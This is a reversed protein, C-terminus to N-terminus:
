GEGKGLGKLYEEVNIYKINNVIKTEGRYIVYKGKISGFYHETEKNLELDNLYHSQENIVEKSYKIEYIKSTSTKEDFIVMDFEAIKFLLKFVKKNPYAKKTELLVLDEMMRGKITSMTRSIIYNRDNLSLKNFKSDKLLADILARVEAYRLGPQSIVTLKNELNINPIHVEDIEYILDLLILYEKIELAHEEKILVKQEDKELIDLMKKMSELVLSSDINEMLDFPHSKDKLLNRSTNSLANSKYTKTLVDITFRHNIDEIVRNIASTLENNKYLEYLNRFHGGDEYYKLSHQINKAIATDVYEKANELNNFPSDKNYNNGNISMTGGYEIFEDIGKLGLVNEFERYSIFTTHLLIARDYLENHITFIFGLSDTGSLVIKMGSSAYIDSFLAAGEIFDELLTIEDIFIYKYGHEELYKLDSNIMSLTDKPKAQIFISKNLDKENMNLLIQKILTTKGTRRLGYLIFVKDNNKSYIYDNLAKYCERKKFNKAPKIFNKLREGKRIYTKFEHDDKKKKVVKYEKSKKLIKLKDELKKRKNIKNKLENVEKFDIYEEYRKHNLTYRHYYYEKGNVKKTTLTGIPLSNIERELDIIKTNIDEM